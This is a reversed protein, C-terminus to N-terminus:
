GADVLRKAMWGNIIYITVSNFIGMVALVIFWIAYDVPQMTVSPEGSGSLAFPLAACIGAMIGDILVRWRHGPRSTRVWNIYTPVRWFVVLASIAVILVIWIFARPPPFDAGALLILLWIIFFTVSNIVAIKQM